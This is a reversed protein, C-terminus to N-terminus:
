EYCSHDHIIRLGATIFILLFISLISENAFSNLFGKTDVIGTFLFIFVAAFFVYSPKVKEWFLFIILLVTVGIVIIQQINQSLSVM